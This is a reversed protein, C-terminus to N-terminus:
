WGPNQVLNSNLTLEQIPIPYLYDRTEDFNKSVEGNIVMYGGNMGDTFTFRGNGYEYYQAGVIKDGPEEGDYLVLTIKGENYLDYEGPGPFYLGHFTKTIVQGEKWRMLDWWRNGERVLEIARERRIELIVGANTGTVNNYLGLLYPDPNANVSAMDIGPMGVRDRLLKVSIDLDTQNLTGLEAKAEAYNLLVEAYRFIPLDNECNFTRDRETVYKIMQYGSYTSEFDPVSTEDEFLQKYGPTRVTQSLRPDRNQTEEYLTKKDFDPLDTYRSGDRMLYTNVFLKNLGPQGFSGSNSTFNVDHNFPISSNYERALIIEDTIANNSIFLERYASEPNSTYLFYDSDQMLELSASVSEELFKEYDSFGHYKGFTGEFLMARSKLALATWRTIDTPSKETGLYQIAFDLDELIREMVYTRSDREKYLLEEDDTEISTSYWPVDGFRKVKEFYYYARFFRAIGEYRNKILEDGPFTDVNDLFYNINRLEGWNWAGGSVPVTRTGRICGPVSQFIMNDNCSESYISSGSPLATYFRNVYTRLENETKFYTQPSLRDKPNRDMFIDDCSSILLVFGFVILVFKSNKM